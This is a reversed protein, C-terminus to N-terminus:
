LEKVLRSVARFHQHDSSRLWEFAVMEASVVTAGAWALRTLATERDAAHRSGSADAVVWVRRGVELLGLATQLLCVHTECGAIVVDRPRDPDVRLMAGAPDASPPTVTRDLEALVDDLGGECAGFTVKDIVRDLREAVPPLNPGLKEPNQATGVVPVGLEHAVAAVFGARRLVEAQDAIAPMLREQYDVLVLVSRDVRMRLDDVRHLLNPM